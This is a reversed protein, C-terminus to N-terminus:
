GAPEFAWMYVGLFLIGAAVVVGLPGFHSLFMLSLFVSLVGLAAVVPWFSPNPM